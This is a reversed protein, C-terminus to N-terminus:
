EGNKFCGLGRDSSQFHLTDGGGFTDNHFPNVGLVLNSRKSMSADKKQFWVPM